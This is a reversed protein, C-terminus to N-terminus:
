LYIGATAHDILMTIIAVLKLTSGSFIKRPQKRVTTENM